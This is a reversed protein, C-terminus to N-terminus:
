YCYQRLKWAVARCRGGPTCKRVPIRQYDCFKDLQPPGIGVWGTYGHRPAKSISEREDFDDSYPDPFPMAQAAAKVVPVALVLVFTVAWLIMANRM